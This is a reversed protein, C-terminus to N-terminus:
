RRLSGFQVWPARPPGGVPRAWRGDGVSEFGHEPFVSQAPDNRPTAEVDGVIHRLGRRTSETDLWDLVATEVGRGLIRCSLLLDDIYVDDASPTGWRVVLVGVNERESFRDRAAIVFVDADVGRAIDQLDGATYRRTTTNFQNTKQMLQAARAVNGDDLAQLEVELRLSALFDEVRGFEARREEVKSRARYDDARRRDADTVELAQLAPHGLLADVFESPDEPLDLVEVEPREARMREREVPNDDIFLLQETAFGLEAAIAAVNDPKADWNVRMAAFDNRGLVMEPHDTLAQLVLPEDNKSAVALLLGRRRLRLLARQFSAYANGPHDGGLEIGSIGDEGLVGGWLTGDLDLVVVRAGRGTAALALAWWARALSRTFSASFPV